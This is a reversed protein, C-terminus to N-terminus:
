PSVVEHTDDAMKSPVGVVSVISTVELFVILPSKEIVLLDTQTQEENRTNTKKVEPRYTARELFGGRLSPNMYRKLLSHTLSYLTTPSCSSLADRSDLSKWVCVVRGCVSRSSM